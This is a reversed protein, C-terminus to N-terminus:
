CFFSERGCVWTGSLSYLAKQLCALQAQLTDHMSAASSAELAPACVRVFWASPLAAGYWKRSKKEMQLLRLLAQKTPDDDDDEDNTTATTAQVAAQLAALTSPQRLIWSDSFHRTKWEALSSSRLAEQAVAAQAARRKAAEQKRLAESALRAADMQRAEATRERSAILELM